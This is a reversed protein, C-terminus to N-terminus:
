THYCLLADHSSLIHQWFVESNQFGKYEIWKCISQVVYNHSIIQELTATNTQIYSSAVCFWLVSCKQSVCLFIISLALKPSIEKGWPDMRTDRYVGEVVHYM